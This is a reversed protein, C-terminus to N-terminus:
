IKKLEAYGFLSNYQLCYVLVFKYTEVDISPDVDFSISANGYGDTLKAIKVVNANSYNNSKSLFVYVDPGQIMTFSEFRLTRNTVSDIFLSSNGELSHAFSLFTGIKSLQGNKPPNTSEAPDASTIVMKPMADDAKNCSFSAFLFIYILIRNRM